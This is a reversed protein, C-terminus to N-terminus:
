FYRDDDYMSTPKGDKVRSARKEEQDKNVQEYHAAVKRLDGSASGAPM